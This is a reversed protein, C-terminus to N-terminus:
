KNRVLVRRPDRLDIISIDRALIQNSTNMKIIQAIANNPEYDETTAIDEPLLITIGGTTHINWRRKEVLEIYDIDSVLTGVAATIKTINEPKEGRFVITGNPREPSPQNVIFGDDSIPYYMGDGMAYVGLVNHMTTHVSINGNPMRRVASYKVGPVSAIRTNLTELDLTYIKTNPLIEAAHQIASLDADGTDAVVSVHHITAGYGHGMRTMIIRTSFYTALIIAVIFCLWFWFTKRM